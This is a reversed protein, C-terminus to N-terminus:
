IRSDGLARAIFAAIFVDCGLREGGMLVCTWIGAGSRAGVSFAAGLFFSWLFLACICLLSEGGFAVALLSQGTRLMCGWVIM